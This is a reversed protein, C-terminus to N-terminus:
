DFIERWQSELSGNNMQGKSGEQQEGSAPADEIPQSVDTPQNLNSNVLKDSKPDSDPPLGIAARIENSSMIENRTFKDAMEAFKEMSVWKFPDKFAKFAQGRSRANKTLFKRHFEDVIASVFPEITRNYYNLMEQESATGDVVAATLGVQAYVSNTLYTIQTLLNNEAPRNLQIVKETGDIYAIGYKSGKLQMEIDKTRKEAQKMRTESKVVFPLQVIIDLKGSSTAEDVADLLNLKRSLRKLTSNPENMVSYFPNEFIAVDAKSVKIRKHTSDREDYLDVVIDQPKWETIKGIRVNYIDYSGTENPDDSTYVPVVACSGDDIVTSILDQIMFRASQDVNAEVSLLENLPGPIESTFRGNQDTQVHRIKNAAVDIAIRTTISAMITRENQANLRIRDPRYSYSIGDGWNPPSKDQAKFVNWASLLRDRIRPM